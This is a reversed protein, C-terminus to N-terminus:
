LREQDFTVEKFSYTETIIDYEDIFFIHNFGYFEKVTDYDSIYAYDMLQYKNYPYDSMNLNITVDRLEIYVSVFAKILSNLDSAVKDESENQSVAEPERIESRISNKFAQTILRAFSKKTDNTANLINAEYLLYVDGGIETFLDYFTSPLIYDLVSSATVLFYNLVTKWALSEAYDVSDMSKVILQNLIQYNADYQNLVDAFSFHSVDFYIILKSLEKKDLVEGVKKVATITDDSGKIEFELNLLIELTNARSLTNLKMMGDYSYSDPTIEDNYPISPNEISYVHKNACSTLIFLHFPTLSMGNYQFVSSNLSKFATYFQILLGYKHVMYQYKDYVNVVGTAGIYKTNIRNFEINLIQKKVHEIAAIKGDETEYVGSRAWYPDDIVFDQYDLIQNDPSVSLSKASTAITRDVFALDVNKDYMGRDKRLGVLGVDDTKFRKILDYKKISLTNDLSVIEMIKQLVEETGRYALLVDLNDVVKRLIKIDVNKLSSLNHSDLIDYIEKNSYNRVNYMDLYSICIKQFTGFLIILLEFNSYNVYMEEFGKVYKNECIYDKTTNYANFFNDIEIDDLMYSDYWLIDFHDAERIKIIDLNLTIYNLYDYNSNQKITNIIGDVYVATYTNPYLNYRIKHLPIKKYINYDREINLSGDANPIEYLYSYFNPFTSKKVDYLTLNGNSLDYNDYEILKDTIDFFKLDSDDRNIIMIEQSSDVPNGSLVAYYPNKDIYSNIFRNRFVNITEIAIPSGNKLEADLALPSKNRLEIPLDSMYDLHDSFVTLGQHCKRLKEYYEFTESTENLDADQSNKIVLTNIFNLIKDSVSKAGKMILSKEIDM